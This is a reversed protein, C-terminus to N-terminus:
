EQLFSKKQIKSCMVACLVCLVFLVFCWLGVWSLCVCHLEGGWKEDHEGQDHHTSRHPHNRGFGAGIIALKVISRIIHRRARRTGLIAVTLGTVGDATIRQITM